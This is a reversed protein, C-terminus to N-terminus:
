KKNILNPFNDKIIKEKFNKDNQIKELLLVMYADENIGISSKLTSLFGKNSCFKLINDYDKEDIYKNVDSIFIELKNVFTNINNESNERFTKKLEDIDNKYKYSSQEQLRPYVKQIYDNITYELTNKAMTIIKGKVYDFTKDFGLFPKLVEFLIDPSLILNEIENYKLTYVQYGRSYKNIEEKERYDNDIIGYANRNFLNNNKTSKCMEIVKTCSEVPIVKFNPFLTSYFRYDFSSNDGEIYLISKKTGIIGIIIDLPIDDYNNKPEIDWNKGDFSKLFLFDFSQRSEIFDINHTCYIFTIDPRERELLNFLDNLLATNFHNEPEDVFLFSHSPCLFTFCLIQVVSKEGDSGESLSYENVGLDDNYLYFQYDNINYTLKRNLNLSNFIELIKSLTTGYIKGNYECINNSSIEQHDINGIKVSLYENPQNEYPYYTFLNNLDFKNVDKIRINDFDKYLVKRGSPIVYSNNTFYNNKIYNLLKTKGVGNKGFLVYNRGISSFYDLIDKNTNINMIDYYYNYFGGKDNHNIRRSLVSRIHDYKTKLYNIYNISYRQFDADVINKKDNILMIKICDIQEKLKEIDVRVIKKDSLEIDYYLNDVLSNEISNLNNNLNIDIINYSDDLVRIIFDKDM